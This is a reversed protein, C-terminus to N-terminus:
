LPDRWFANAALEIAHREMEKSDIAAIFPLVIEAHYKNGQLPSPEVTRGQESAKGQTVEAWGYFNRKEPHEYKYYNDAIVSVAALFDDHLRDVSIKLKDPSIFLNLPANGSQVKARDGRQHVRRGLREDPGLYAKDFM